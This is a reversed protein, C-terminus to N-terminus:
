FILVDQEICMVAMIQEYSVAVSGNNGKKSRVKVGDDDELQRSRMKM